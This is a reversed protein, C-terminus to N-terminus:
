AMSLGLGSGNPKTTFFPEFIKARVDDPVGSGEDSVAIEIANPKRRTEITLVGGDPMAERANLLLNAIVHKFQNALVSVQPLPGATKRVIRITGGRVTPTQEILYDVMKIAATLLEEVDGSSLDEGRRSTVYERVNAVRQSAAELSRDIADIDALLDPGAKAKLMRLRLASVNLNNNLDHVLGSAMEGIARMRENRFSEDRVQLFGVLASMQSTTDVGVTVVHPTGDLQVPYRLCFLFRNDEVQDTTILPQGSSLVLQDKRWYVHGVRPFVEEDTAGIFKSAPINLARTVESNM